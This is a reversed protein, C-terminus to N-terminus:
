AGDFKDERARVDHAGAQGVRVGAHGRDLLVHDHGDHGLALVVDEGDALGGHGGVLDLGLVLADADFVVVVEVVSEPVHLWDLSLSVEIRQTKRHLLVPPSRITVLLLSIHDPHHLFSTKTRSFLSESPKVSQCIFNLHLLFDLFSLLCKLPNSSVFGTFHNM